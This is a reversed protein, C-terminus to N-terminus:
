LNPYTQPSSTIHFTFTRSTEPSCGSHNLSPEPSSTETANLKTLKALEPPISGTLNNFSLDLFNLNTLQSRFSPVPGSLNTWSLTLSTLNTLKTITSPIHGTLNTLKHFM